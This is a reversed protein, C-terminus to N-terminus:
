DPDLVSTFFTLCFLNKKLVIYKANNFFKRYLAKNKLKLGFYFFTVSLSPNVSFLLLFRTSVTSYQVTSVTNEAINTPDPTNAAARSGARDGVRFLVSCVTNCFM